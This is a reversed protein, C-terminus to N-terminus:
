VDAERLVQMVSEYGLLDNVDAMYEVGPFLKRRAIDIKALAECWGISDGRYCLTLAGIACWQCAAPDEPTTRHGDARRAVEFKTWKSPDALLEHAKM